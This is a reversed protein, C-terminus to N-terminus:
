RRERTHRAVPQIGDDEVGPGRGRIRQLLGLLGLGLGVVLLLAITTGPGLGYFDVRPLQRRAAALFGAALLLALAVLLSILSAAHDLLRHLFRNTM